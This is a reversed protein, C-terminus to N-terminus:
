RRCEVGSHLLRASCRATAVDAETAPTDVIRCYRRAAGSQRAQM